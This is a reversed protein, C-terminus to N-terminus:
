IAPRSRPPFPLREGIRCDLKASKIMDAAKEAIGYVSAQLHALLILPMISADAIRLNCTGYVKLEPDAVGGLELPMMAATGSPHRETSIKEMVHRM